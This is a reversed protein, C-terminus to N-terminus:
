RARNLSHSQSQAHSHLQRSLRGGLRQQRSQLMHLVMIQLLFSGVGGTYTEHLGRQQLFCKLVLILSGMLPRWKHLMSRILVSGRLGMTEDFCVDVALGTKAHVFKVLPVRASSIVEM